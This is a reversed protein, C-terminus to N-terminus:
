LRYRVRLTNTHPLCTSEDLLLARLTPLHAQLKALSDCGLQSLGGVFEHRQFECMHAANMVWALVLMVVDSPDVGLDECLDGVGEALIM